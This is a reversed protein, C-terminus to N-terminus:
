MADPCLYIQLSQYRTQSQDHQNAFFWELFGREQRQWTNGCSDFSQKNRQKDVHLWMLRYIYMCIAEFLQIARMRDWLSKRMWGDQLLPLGILLACLWCGFCCPNSIGNEEIIRELSSVVDTTGQAVVLLNRCFFVQLICWQLSYMYPADIKQESEELARPAAFSM